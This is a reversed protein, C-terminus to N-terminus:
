KFKTGKKTSCKSGDPLIILHYDNGHCKYTSHYTGRITKGTKNHKYSVKKGKKM